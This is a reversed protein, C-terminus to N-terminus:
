LPSKREQDTTAPKRTQSLWLTQELVRPKCTLTDLVRNKERRFIYTPECDSMLISVGALDRGPTVAIRLGHVRPQFPFGTMLSAAVLLSAAAAFPWLLLRWWEPSLREGSHQLSADRLTAIMRSQVEPGLALSETRRSFRDTLTQAVDRQRRMAGRCAACEALHADADAQAAPALTDDLYEFLQDQFSQCNM